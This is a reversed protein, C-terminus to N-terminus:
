FPSCPLSRSWVDAAAEFAAEGEIEMAGALRERIVLRMRPLQHHGGARVVLNAVRVPIAGVEIVVEHAFGLFGARGIEVLRRDLADVKIAVARREFARAVALRDM